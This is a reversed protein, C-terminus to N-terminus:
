ANNAKNQLEWLAARVFEIVVRRENATTPMIYAGKQIKLADESMAYMHAALRANCNFKYEEVYEGRWMKSLMDTYAKKFDGFKFGEGAHLGARVKNLEDLAVRGFDKVIGMIGDYDGRVGCVLTRVLADACPKFNDLTSLIMDARAKVISLAKEASELANKDTETANRMTDVYETLASLTSKIADAETAYWESRFASEFTSLTKHLGALTLEQAKSTGKCVDFRVYVNARSVVSELTVSDKGVEVMNMTNESNAIISAIVTETIVNKKM